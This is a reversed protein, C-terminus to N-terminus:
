RRSISKEKITDIISYEEPTNETYFYFRSEEQTMFRVENDNVFEMVVLQPEPTNIDARIIIGENKTRRPTDITTTSHINYLYPYSKLLEEPTSHLNGDMKKMTDSMRNTFEFKNAFRKDPIYTIKEIYTETSSDYEYDIHEILNEDPVIDGNDAYSYTGDGNDIIHNGEKDTIVYTDMENFSKDENMVENYYQSYVRIGLLTDDQIPYKHVKEKNYSSIFLDTDYTTSPSIYTTDLENESISNSANILLKSYYPMLPCDYIEKFEEYSLVIVQKTNDLSLLIVKYPDTNDCRVILFYKTSGSNLVTLEPYNSKSIRYRNSINPSDIAESIEIPNGESDTEPVPKNTSEYYFINTRKYIRRNENDIYSRVAMLDKSADLFRIATVKGLYQSNQEPYSNYTSQKINTIYADTFGNMDNVLRIM